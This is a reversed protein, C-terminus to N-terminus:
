SYGYARRNANHEDLTKAFVHAGSGDPIALFYYFGSDTAPALAAEMSALGPAAIPTPPLGRLQYSQYGALDAPLQVDGLAPGPPERESPPEWFTFTAWQEFPLERLALTDLAYLVVPDANLIQLAGQGNLRNQYVGAILPREDAVKAEREVISALKLREYFTAQAVREQGVEKIFRDLMARILEEATTDATLDYAAPFLYGELSAGEPLGSAQLWPYDALLTAPPATALARFEQADVALDEEWTDIFAAMQDIRLGERFIKEVVQDVPEVIENEILGTVVEDPTMNRALAFDGASLRSALSRETAQFVFARADLVLGEAELRRAVSEISDGQNVTFVVERSDRSPADTLSPGLRERVLDAVFPLRLAGPNDYGWSVLADSVVPRLITLAGGVVIAALILAFAFFRVLGGISSGRRSRLRRGNLTRPDPSWAASRPDRPRGGNRITL